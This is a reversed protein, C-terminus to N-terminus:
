KLRYNNDGAPKLEYIVNKREVVIEWGRERAIEYLRNEPNFAIPREVFELMDLDGKSDGVAISGEVTLSHEAILRKLHSGKMHIVKEINGTFFGDKEEYTEGIAVDFGYHEGFQRIGYMESGSLAILFYGEAKLKKILDRTYVYSYEKYHALVNDVAIRYDSVRLRTMHEFLVDVSLKSYENFVEKHSRKRYQEFKEALKIGAGAPIFGLTVLEDVVAFFISNRAVTGDIDFAAFKRQIM